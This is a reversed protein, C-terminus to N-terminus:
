LMCRESELKVRIPAVVLAPCSEFGSLSLNPERMLSSSYEGSSSAVMMLLDAEISSTGIFSDPANSIAELDRPVGLIAFLSRM